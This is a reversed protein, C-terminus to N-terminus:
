TRNVHKRKQLLYLFKVRLAFIFYIGQTALVNLVYEYNWRSANIIFSTNDNIRYIPLKDSRILVALCDFAWKTLKDRKKQRFVQYYLRLCSEKKSRFEWARSVLTKYFQSKRRTYKSIGKNKNARNLEWPAFIFNLPGKATPVKIFQWLGM